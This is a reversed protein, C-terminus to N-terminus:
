LRLLLDKGDWRLPAFIEFLLGLSFKRRPGEAGRRHLRKTVDRVGTEMMVPKKPLPLVV